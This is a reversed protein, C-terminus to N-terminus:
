PITINFDNPFTCLYQEHLTRHNAARKAEWDALENDPVGVRSPVGVSHLVRKVHLSGILRQVGSILLNRASQDHLAQLTSKCDSITNSDATTFNSIRYVTM